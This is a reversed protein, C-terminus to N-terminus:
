SSLATNNKNRKKRLYFFVATSGGILILASFTLAWVLPSIGKQEGSVSFHYTGSGARYVPFGDKNQGVYTLGNGDKKRINKGSETINGPNKLPIVIEATSNVPITIDWTFVGNQNSWNSVAEGRLTDITCNVFELQSEIGARYTIAQYGAGNQTIGGLGQFVWAGLGGGMMAHNQSDYSGVDDNLHSNFTEGAKDWYEWLTTAGNELMYGFSCKEPNVTLDVLLKHQNASSLAAYLSKTGLVGTRLTQEARNVADILTKTVGKKQNEPVLGFHLAMANATQTESSFYTDQNYQQQIADYMNALYSDLEQHDRGTVEAMKSLLTGCYYFYPMTLFGRDLLNDNNDYGLWDGYVNGTYLYDGDTDQAKFYDFVRLLSDYAMDIYYPDGTQLYTQYPFVFYASTWTIDFGANTALDTTAWPVVTFPQGESTIDLYMTRMYAEATTYDGLLLAASEKTVSADGTWGNKERQPCDTYNSMMNSRQSQCYMQFITNLRDLSSEFSGTTDVDDSIFCATFDEPQVGDAIGDVEVYRFGTYFFRPEFEDEGGSLTYTCVPHHFTTSAWLSGDEHLLEAYKIVIRARKRGTTNVKVYGQMNKGFDLIYSSTGTQTVSVPKIEEIVKTGTISPALQPEKPINWKEYNITDFNDEWVTQGNQIVAIRDLDFSEGLAARIGLPGTTQGAILQTTHLLTNNLFTKVTNGTVELRINLVAGTRIMSSPIAEINNWNGPYHIRLAGAAPSFQWMGAYPSGSGLLLGFATNQITVLAEITYDGSFSRTTNYIGSDSPVNLQGDSINPGALVANSWKKGERYGATDWDERQNADVSEGSHLNEQTTESTGCARWTTDTAVVQTSGDKYYIKLMGVARNGMPVASSVIIGVANEGEQLYPLIDYTNYYCELDPVPRKPGLILDGVKNGNMRLEMYSTSGIYSRAREVNALEQELVFTQRLLRSSAIWQGSVQDPATELTKTESFESETGNQDKVRVKWSYVTEPQLNEPRIGIQASSQIWGSDWVVGNKDEVIVQYASQTVGRQAASLKWGLRVNDAAIGLDYRSSTQFADEVAIGSGAARLSGAGPLCSTLLVASLMTCLMRKRNM